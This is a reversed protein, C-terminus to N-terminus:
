SQIQRYYFVRMECLNDPGSLSKLEEWRLPLVEQHSQIKWTSFSMSQMFLFLRILLSCLSGSLGSSCGLFHRVAGHLASPIHFNKIWCVSIFTNQSLLTWHRRNFFFFPLNYLEINGVYFQEKYNRLRYKENNQPPHQFETSSIRFKKSRIPEMLSLFSFLHLKKIDKKFFPDRGEDYEIM